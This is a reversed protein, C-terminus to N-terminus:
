ENITTYMESFRGKHSTKPDLTVCIFHTYMSYFGSRKESSVVLWSIGFYNELKWFQQGM